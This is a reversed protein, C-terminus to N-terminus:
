CFFMALRLLFGPFLSFNHAKEWLEVPGCPRAGRQLQAKRGLSRRKWHDNYRRYTVPDAQLMKASQFEWMIIRM